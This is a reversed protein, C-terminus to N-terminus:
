HNSEQTRNRPQATRVVVLKNHIGNGLVQPDEQLSGDKCSVIRENTNSPGGRTAMSMCESCPDGFARGDSGNAHMCKFQHLRDCIYHYKQLVYVSKSFCKLKFVKHQDYRNRNM